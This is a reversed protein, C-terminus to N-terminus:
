FSHKLSGTSGRNRDITQFELNQRNKSIKILKLTSLLKIQIFIFINQKSNEPNCKISVQFAM